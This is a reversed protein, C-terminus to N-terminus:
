KSNYYKKFIPIDLLYNLDLNMIELCEDITDNTVEGDFGFSEDYRHFLSEEDGVFDWKLIQINEILNSPVVIIDSFISGDLTDDIKYIENNSIATKLVTPSHTSDIPNPKVNSIKVTMIFWETYFEANKSETTFFFGGYKNNGTSVLGTGIMQKEFSQFPVFSRTGHYCIVDEGKNEYLKFKTIM